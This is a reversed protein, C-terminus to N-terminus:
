WASGPLVPRGPSVVMPYPWSKPALDVRSNGFSDPRESSQVTLREKMPKLQLESLGDAPVSHPIQSRLQQTFKDQHDRAEPQEDTGACAPLALLLSTLFSIFLIKM